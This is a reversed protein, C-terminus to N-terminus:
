RLPFSHLDTAPTMRLKAHRSSRECTQCARGVRYSRHLEGRLLLGQERIRRGPNEHRRGPGPTPKSGGTNHERVSVFRDNFAGEGRSPAIDDWLPSIPRRTSVGATPRYGGGIVELLTRIAVSGCARIPRWKEAWPIGSRGQTTREAHPGEPHTGCAVGTGKM